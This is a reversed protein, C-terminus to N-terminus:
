HPVDVNCQYLKASSFFRNTGGPTSIYTGYCQAGRYPRDNTLLVRCDATEFYSSNLGHGHFSYHVLM